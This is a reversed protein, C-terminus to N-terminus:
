HLHSELFYLQLDAVRTIETLLDATTPDGLEEAKDIGERVSKVYAAFRDRLQMTFQKGDGFGLEFEKLSSTAAAVRVTGQAVGGLTGIREAVEDVFPELAEHISDFMKHFEWFAIGRVNWHAQKIQSTLDFTDALCQGLLEVLGERQAPKIDLKVDQLKEKVAPM